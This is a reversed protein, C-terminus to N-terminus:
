NLLLSIQELGDLGELRSVHDLYRHVPRFDFHASVSPRLDLQFLDRKCDLQNCGIIRGEEFSLCRISLYPALFAIRGTFLLALHHLVKLPSFFYLRCM